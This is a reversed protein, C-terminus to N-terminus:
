ISDHWRNWDRVHSPLPMYDGHDGTQRACCLRSGSVCVCVVMCVFICLYACWTCVFALVVGCLRGSVSAGCSRELVADGSMHVCATSVVQMCTMVMLQGGWAQHELVTLATQHRPVHHPAMVVITCSAVHSLPHSATICNPSYVQHPLTSIRFQHPLTCYQPIIHHHHHNHTM